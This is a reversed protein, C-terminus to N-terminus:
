PHAVFIATRHLSLCASRLVCVFSNRPARSSRSINRFGNGDFQAAKYRMFESHPQVIRRKHICWNSYCNSIKTILIIHWIKKWPALAGLHGPGEENGLICLWVWRSGGCKAPGRQVLSWGSSVVGVVSPYGNGGHSEFGFELLRAAASWRRLGRLWWSRSKIRWWPKNKYNLTIRDCGFWCM